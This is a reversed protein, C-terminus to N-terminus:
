YPSMLFAGGRKFNYGHAVLCIRLFCDFITRSFPAIGIIAFMIRGCIVGGRGIGGGGEGLPGSRPIM